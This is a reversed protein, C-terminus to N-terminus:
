FYLGQESREYHPIQWGETEYMFRYHMTINGM